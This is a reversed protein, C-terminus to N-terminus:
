IIKRESNLEQIQKITRKLGEIANLRPQGRFKKSQSEWEIKILKLCKLCTVTEQLISAEKQNFKGQPSCSYHGNWNDDHIVKKRLCLKCEVNSWDTDSCCWKKVGCLIKDKGTSFHIRHQRGIIKTKNEM